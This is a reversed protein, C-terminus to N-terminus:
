KFDGPTLRALDNLDLASEIEAIEAVKREFGDDGFLDREKAELQESLADLEAPRLIDRFAPFLITDERSAHARYMRAFARLAAATKKRDRPTAQEVFATIKRGVAHQDRLTRVLAVHVLGNECRPFVVDEESREHYEHVFERVLKAAAPLVTPPPPEATTSELRRACEDYVLLVRQLLGHERMLDETPGVDEKKPAADTSPEAPTRAERCGLVLSAGTAAAGLLLDRRSAM